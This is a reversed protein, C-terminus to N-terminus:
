QYGNDNIGTNDNCNLPSRLGCHNQLLPMQHSTNAKSIREKNGNISQLRLHYSNSAQYGRFFVVERIDM